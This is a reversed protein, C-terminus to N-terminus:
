RAPGDGIARHIRRVQRASLGTREPEGATAPEAGPTRLAAAVETLRVRAEALLRDVTEARFRPSCECRVHLRDDEVWAL